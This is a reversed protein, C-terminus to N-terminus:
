IAECTRFGKYRRMFERTKRRDQFLDPMVRELKFLLGAPISVGHRMAKSKGSGWKNYNTNRTEKNQLIQLQIESPNLVSYEKIVQDVATWTDIGELSDTNLSYLGVVRGHEDLMLHETGPAKSRYTKKKKETM